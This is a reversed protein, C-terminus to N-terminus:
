GAKVPVVRIAGLQKPLNGTELCGLGRALELSFAHLIRLDAERLRAKIPSMNRILLTARVRVQSASPEESGIPCRFELLTDMDSSWAGDAVDYVTKETANDLSYTAWQFSIQLPSNAKSSRWSIHCAYHENGRKDGSPLPLEAKMSKAIADTGELVQSSFKGAGSVERLLGATKSDLAGHCVQEASQPSPTSTSQHDRPVKSANCGPLALSIVAVLGILRLPRRSSLADTM